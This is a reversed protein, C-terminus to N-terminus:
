EIEPVKTENEKPPFISPDPSGGALELERGRPSAEWSGKETWSVLPGGGLLLPSSPPM